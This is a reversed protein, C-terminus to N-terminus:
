RAYRACVMMAYLKALAERYLRKTHESCLHLKRMAARLHLVARDLNM